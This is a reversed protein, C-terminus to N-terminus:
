HLKATLKTQFRGGFSFVTNCPEIEKRDFHMKVDEPTIWGNTIAKNIETPTYLEERVLFTNSFHVSLPVQDSSKKVKYYLM